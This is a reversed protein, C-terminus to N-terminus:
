EPPPSGVNVTYSDTFTSSDSAWTGSVSIVYDGTVGTPFWYSLDSTKSVSGSWILQPSAQGPAQVYWSVSSAAAGLTLNANHNDGATASYYTPSSSSPALSVSPPTPTPTPAPTPEPTYTNAGNNGNTGGNFNNHNTDAGPCDESGDLCQDCNPTADIDSEHWGVGNPGFVSVNPPETAGKGCKTPTGTYGSIWSVYFGGSSVGYSYVPFWWHIQKKPPDDCNRYPNGCVNILVKNLLGGYVIEKQCYLVQHEEVEKPRCSYYEDGCGLCSVKHSTAKSTLASLPVGIGRKFNHIQGSFFEFHNNDYYWDGCGICAVSIQPVAVLMDNLEGTNQKNRTFGELQSLASHFKDRDSYKDTIEQNKSKIEAYKDIRQLELDYKKRGAEIDTLLTKILLVTAGIDPRRGAIALATMSTLLDELGSTDGAIAKDIAELDHKLDHMQDLADDLYGEAATWEDHAQGVDTLVVTRGDSTEVVPPCASCGSTCVDCNPTTDAAVTFICLPLAIACIALLTILSRKILSRKFYLM